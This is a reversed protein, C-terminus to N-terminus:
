QSQSAAASASAKKAAAHRYVRVWDVIMKAPFPTSANPSGPYGGGVALDLIIFFRHDFPWGKYASMHSYAYGDFYWTIGKPTWVVAYTHFGSTMPEPLTLAARHSVHPAHAYALLLYPNKGNPEAIDIEGCAPWGVQYVNDGEIWFAPWLGRGPPFKIRAEFKGYSQSFTNKTEMRASSYDCPGYWCKEGNAGHDATIVLQGKRDVSANSADYWQLQKLNFGDGGSYYLWKGLAGPKGFDASWTLVWKASKGASAPGPTNSAGQGGPDTRHQGAGHRDARAATAPTTACAALLLPVGLLLWGLRPPPGHRWVHRSRVSRRRAAAPM